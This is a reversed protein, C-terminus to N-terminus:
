FALVLDVFGLCGDGSRAEYLLLAIGHQPRQAKSNRPVQIGEALEHCAGAQRRNTAFVIFGDGIRETKVSGRSAYLL